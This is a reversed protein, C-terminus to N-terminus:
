ADDINTKDQYRGQRARGARALAQLYGAAQTTVAPRKVPKGQM